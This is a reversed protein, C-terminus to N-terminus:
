FSTSNLIIEAYVGDIMSWDEIGIRFFLVDWFWKNFYMDGWNTNWFTKSNYFYINNM